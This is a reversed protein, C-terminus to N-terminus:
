SLGFPSVLLLQCMTHWTTLRSGALRYTIRAGPNHERHAALPGYMNEMEEQTVM